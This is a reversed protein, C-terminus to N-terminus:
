RRKRILWCSRWLDSRFRTIRNMPLMLIHVQCQQQLRRQQQQNRRRQQQNRRRHHQGAVRQCLSVRLRLALLLLQRYMGLLLVITTMRGRSPCKMSVKMISRWTNSLSILGIWSRSPIRHLQECPLSSNLGAYNRLINQFGTIKFYREGDNIGMYGCNDPKGLQDSINGRVNSKDGHVEFLEVVKSKLSSSMTKSALPLDLAEQTFVDNLKLISSRALSKGERSM